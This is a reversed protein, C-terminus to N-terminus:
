GDKLGIMKLATLALIELDLWVNKNEIYELDCELRKLPSEGEEKLRVQALGTLGPRVLLRKEWNKIKKLRVHDEISLPRPGILSMEKKLINFVQPLEDLYTKRLVNGIRTPTGNKMTKFKYIRFIKGNEGVREQRYIKPNGEFALILFIIAIIPLFFILLIATLITETIRNM